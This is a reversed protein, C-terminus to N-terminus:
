YGDGDAEDPLEVEIATIELEKGSTLEVDASGCRPCRITGQSDLMAGCARCTFVFPRTEIALRAGDVVTEAAAVPFAFRLAEPDVGSYRGIIVDITGVIAGPYDALHEAVVTVIDQAISLEHM